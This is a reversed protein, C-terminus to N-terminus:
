PVCFLNAFPRYRSDVHVAALVVAHIAAVAPLLLAAALCADRLWEKRRALVCTAVLIYYLLRTGFGYQGSVPWACVVQIEPPAASANAITDRNILSRLLPSAVFPPM